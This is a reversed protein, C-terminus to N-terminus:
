RSHRQFLSQVHFGLVCVTRNALLVGIACLRLWRPQKRGSVLGACCLPVSLRACVHTFPAHLMNKLQEPLEQMRRSLYCRCSKLSFRCHVVVAVCVCGAAIDVDLENFRTEAEDKKRKNDAQKPPNQAYKRIQVARRLVDVVAHALVFVFGIACRKKM